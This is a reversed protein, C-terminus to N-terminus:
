TLTKGSEGGHDRLVGALADHNFRTAWDLPFSGNQAMANVNAGNDILLKIIALHGHRAACHLPTKGYKDRGDVQAGHKILFGAIEAFNGMAAAHLVTNGTATEGNVDVGAELLRTIRALDGEVTAALLDATTPDNPKNMSTKSTSAEAM